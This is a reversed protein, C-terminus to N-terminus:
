QGTVGTKGKRLAIGRASMAGGLRKTATGFGATMGAGIMNIRQMEGSDLLRAEAGIWRLVRGPFESVLSFSREIIVVYSMVVLFGTAILGFIGVLPSANVLASMAYYMGYDLLGSAIRFLAM